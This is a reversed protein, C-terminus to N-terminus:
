LYVHEEPTMRPCLMEAQSHLGLVEVDWLLAGGSCVSWRCQETLLLLATSPELMLRYHQPLHKCSSVTCEVGIVYPHM